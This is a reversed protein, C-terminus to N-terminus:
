DTTSAAVGVMHNQSTNHITWLFSGRTAVQSKDTLFTTVKVLNDVSMGASALITEINNWVVECQESFSGPVEGGPLEPIQGSIFLLRSANRVELGHSYGGIPASVDEPNHRIFTM